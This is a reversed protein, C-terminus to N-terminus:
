TLTQNSFNAGNFKLWAFSQDNLLFFMRVVAVLVELQEPVSVPRTILALHDPNHGPSLFGVRTVAFFLPDIQWVPNRHRM